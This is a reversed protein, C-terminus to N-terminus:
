IWQVALLLVIHISMRSSQLLIAKGSCEDKWRSLMVMIELYHHALSYSQIIKKEPKIV